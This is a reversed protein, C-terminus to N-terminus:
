RGYPVVNSALTRMDGEALPVSTRFLEWSEKISGRAVDTGWLVRQPGVQQIRTALTQLVGPPQDYAVTAIDFYLNKTRPDRAAIAEAYVALAPDTYGPGAGAFHAIQIPIDPALPLIQNLFVEADARGYGKGTWLHAIIAMRRANAAAFVRGLKEVHESNRVDVGSNAFHLKLGRVSPHTSCREFEALAYAALPNLSCFAVLRTPFRSVETVTWVNEARVNAQEDGEVKPMVPSAFWYATSLVVGRQIGAEDLQAILQEAPRPERTLGAMALLTVAIPSILHLHHDAAPAIPLPRLAGQSDQSRLRPAPVVLAAVLWLLGLRKV